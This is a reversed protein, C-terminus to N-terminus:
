DMLHTLTVPGLLGCPTVPWQSADFHKYALNVFNIDYFNQWVVGRRDMDRIRNAALSAVEVELVNGTPKSVSLELTLPALIVAGVEEGNLRVRASECVRGLDLIYRGPKAEFITTYRATGSFAEYEPGQETWSGLKECLFPPPLTPGGELFVVEWPNKLVQTAGEARASSEGGYGPLIVSGNPPLMRSGSKGTLPSLCQGLAGPLTVTKPTPNVVFRLTNREVMRRVVSLGLEALTERVAGAQTLAAELQARPTPRLGRKAAELKARRESLRGFGPVDTPLTDVFFVPIRLRKLRALTEPPFHTTAPVVVAKYRAPLKKTLMRDSVFDFQWGRDLLQQALPGLTQKELWGRQHVTLKEIRGKQSHLLDHYPWYLLVDSGPEGAQLFSQCRSIYDHLAKAHRWIPNRPNMQTSAYFVWGPWAAEDPSYITGHWFIHNIGSLFMEDVLVKLNGLTETFHEKLWTGTEASALKKGTVHAASSAFKSVLISRDDHFMETEPIDALAYLDLLNGPAGHAEYRSIMGRRKGWAIWVPQAKEVMLDSHIERYDALVREADGADGRGGSTGRELRGGEASRREAQSPPAFVNFHDQLKYGHKKEFAELLEPAWDNNYEYSDQYIARPLPGKWGSFARTFREMFRRHARESAPNLMWGEGGLGARKVKQGSPKSTISGDPRIVLSQNADEDRVNPGGLCWGCGVSMDIGLGLREAETLTYKLLALWRPSLYSVFRKEFGKAGYIPIIHVGGMGADRYRTLERTLNAEDVASGMWWWYAWPKTEHTVPPWLSAENETTTMPTM